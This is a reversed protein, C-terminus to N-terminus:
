FSLAHGLMVVIIMFRIAVYPHQIFGMRPTGVDGGQDTIMGSRDSPIDPTTEFNADTM